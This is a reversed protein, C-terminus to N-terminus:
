KDRVLHNIAASAAVESMTNIMRETFSMPLTFSFIKNVVYSPFSPNGSISTFPPWPGAPIVYIHPVKLQYVVSLFCEAMFASLLVLDFEEKLLDQMPKQELADSCLKPVNQMLTLPGSIKSGTFLNPVIDEFNVGSLVVERVNERVKAPNYPSVM